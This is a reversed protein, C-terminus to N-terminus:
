FVRKGAGGSQTLDQLSRESLCFFESSVCASMLKVNITMFMRLGEGSDGQSQEHTNIM